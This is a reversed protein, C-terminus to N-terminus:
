MASQAEVHAIFHNLVAEELEVNHWSNKMM